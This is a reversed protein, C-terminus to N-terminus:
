YIDKRDGVKTVTLVKIEDEILYIVRYDGVRIRWLDSSTGRLKKTDGARPNAKLSEVKKIIKPIIAPPLKRLAKTASKTFRIQYM